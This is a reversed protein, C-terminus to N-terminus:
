QSEKPSLNQYDVSEIGELQEEIPRKYKEHARKRYMEPNEERRKKVADKKIKPATNPGLRSFKPKLINHNEVHTNLFEKDTHTEKPYKEKLHKWPHQHEEVPTNSKWKPYKRCFQEMADLTLSNFKEPRIKIVRLCKHYFEDAKQLFRSNLNLEEYDIVNLVLNVYKMQYSGTACGLMATMLEIGPRINCEDMAKLLEYADHIKRCTMALNTFTMLDPQLGNSSILSLVEKAESYQQRQIRRRILGNFFLLDAQIEFKKALKILAEEATCTEPCCQLLISMTKIDPKVQFKAMEKLIGEVGGLLLLRDQPTKMESLSVVCGLTPPHSLLNPLLSKPQYNNIVSLTDGENLATSTSGSVITACTNENEEWPYAPASLQNVKEPSLKEVNVVGLRQLVDITSDIDGIACDRTCHLLLNYHIVDPTIRYEIMKRYVLLAHRFGANKDSICAHFLFSVTEGNLQMKKNMMYDVVKFAEEVSGCRGFAKVIAHCTIQNPEIGKEGMLAFLHRTRKLGDSPYPSNAFSNFLSTYVSSKVPLDRKKMENYLKVAMKSYGTSGCYSILISYIYYEPKVRHEKLMTVQLVDLADAFRRQCLYKKIMDAYRKQPLYNPLESTFKDEMIDDESVAPSTSVDSYTNSLTGFTDPDDSAGTTFDVSEVASRPLSIKDEDTFKNLDELFGRDVSDLPSKKELSSHDKNLTNEKSFRRPFHQINRRCEFGLKNSELALKTMRRVVNCRLFLGM